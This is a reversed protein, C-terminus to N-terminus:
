NGRHGPLLLYAHGRGEAESSNDIQMNSFRDANLAKNLFDNSSYRSKLFIYNLHLVALNLQLAAFQRQLAASIILLVM